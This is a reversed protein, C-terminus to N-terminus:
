VGTVVMDAIETADSLGDVERSSGGSTQPDTLRGGNVHRENGGSGDDGREREVM